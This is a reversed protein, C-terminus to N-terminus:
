AAVAAAEDGGLRSFAERYQNGYRMRADSTARIDGRKLAELFGDTAKKLRALDEDVLRKVEPILERFGVRGIANSVESLHYREGSPSSIIAEVWSRLIGILQPKLAPDVPIPLMRDDHDGHSSVLSALSAILDPDDTDARGMVAAVLSPVRTAGIRADLRHYEDSLGRDANAGTNRAAKLAEVCGLYKDVLAAVTGPGAMVAIENVERSDQSVDLITRAIRGEDTVELQGLLEYAHFPLELGAELRQRLGELVAAPARQQAYHLSSGGQQDRVPFRADAIAATIGADRGPQDPSQELLLRLRDVPETALALAKNHESRLRAAAATDRIEDAYGRQAVLAWTENHAVARLNAVHRDARRFLLWGVVDAHVKPSPDTKALETALDMGDVGSGSAISGLLHERTEEPLAAVKSRFDPGLVSPRFRPATRLTPLQVQSNASSALPWVRSESEPRGTMIMFRVARDVTGPRRWRDVFAIIDAKVIEWVAPSARYIMEASLMPDVPLALRVAQAVVAVGDGERSVREVAFLISEEWAAQDFIAARLRVCASSDGKASARMLEAVEHSGFWEQFQQHQFAIAGNGAGPGMLTHHSILVELM